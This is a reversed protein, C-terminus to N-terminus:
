LKYGLENLYTYGEMTEIYFDILKVGEKPKIEGKKVKEDAKKAMRRALDFTPTCYANIIPNLKEIREIIIETIEQSTIEQTNIKEAMDCASMYCIEEKNM